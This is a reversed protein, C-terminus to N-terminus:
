MHHYKSGNKLKRISLQRREEELMPLIEVGSKVLEQEEATSLWKILKACDQCYLGPVAEIRNKFLRPIIVVTHDAHRDLTDNFSM